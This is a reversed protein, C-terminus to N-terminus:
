AAFGCENLFSAGLMERLAARGRFITSSVQSAEYGTATAIEAPKYGEIVMGLMLRQNESLRNVKSRIYSIAQRSDLREDLLSEGAQPEVALVYSENGDSDKRVTELPTLPMQGAEYKQRFNKAGNEVIKSVWQGPNGRGPDYSHRCRWAKMALEQFLDEKDKESLYRGKGRAYREVHAEVAELIESFKVASGNRAIFTETANTKKM